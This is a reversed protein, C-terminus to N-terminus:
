TFREGSWRWSLSSSLVLHGFARTADGSVFVMSSPIDDIPKGTDEDRSWTRGHFASVQLWDLPRTALTVETGNSRARSINVWDFHDGADALRLTVLDTM